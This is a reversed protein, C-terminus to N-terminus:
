TNYALLTGSDSLETLLVEEVVSFVMNIPHGLSLKSPLLMTVSSQRHNSQTKDVGSSYNTTTEERHLNNNMLLGNWDAYKKSIVLLNLRTTMKLEWTETCFARTELDLLYSTVTGPWQVSEGRMDLWLSSLKRKRRTGSRFYEPIHEWLLVPAGILGSYAQLQTMKELITCSQLKVQLQLGFICVLASDLQLHTRVLGISLTLIFTMRYLPLMWCKSLHRQSKGKNSILLLSSTRMKSALSHIWTTHTPTLIRKTIDSDLFMIRRPHRWRCPWVKILLERSITFKQPRMAMKSWILTKSTLCKIKFCLRIFGKTKMLRGKLIWSIILRMRIKSTGTWKSTKTRKSWRLM